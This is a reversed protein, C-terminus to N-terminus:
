GRQSHSLTFRRAPPSDPVPAVSLLPRERSGGSLVCPNVVFTSVALNPRWKKQLTNSRCHDKQRSIIMWILLKKPALLKLTATKMGWFLMPENNTSLITEKFVNKRCWLAGAWISKSNTGRESKVPNLNQNQSTHSTQRTMAPLCAFRSFCFKSHLLRLKGTTDCCCYM